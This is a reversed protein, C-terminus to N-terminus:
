RLDMPLLWSLESPKTVITNFSIEDICSITFRVYHLLSELHWAEIDNPNNSYVLNWLSSALQADSGLIGEDFLSFSAYLLNYYEKMRKQITLSQNSEEEIKKLRETVDFWLMRTMASMLIEGDRGEQRLRVFLCWLHLYVVHMWMNFSNELGSFERIKAHPVKMYVGNLLEFAASQLQENEYREPLVLGFKYAFQKMPELYSKRSIYSRKTANPPTNSKARCNLAALIRENNMKKINVLRNNTFQACFYRCKFVAHNQSLIVNAINRVTCICAM